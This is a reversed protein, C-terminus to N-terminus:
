PAPVTRNMDPLHKFGIWRPTSLRKGSGACCDDVLQSLVDIDFPKAVVAYIGSRSLFDIVEPAMVDVTLVISRRLLRPRDRLARVTVVCEGRRKMDILISGYAKVDCLARARDTTTATEVVHRGPPRALIARLLTSIPDDDCILLVTASSGRPSAM